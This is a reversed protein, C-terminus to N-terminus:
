MINVITMYIPIVIIGLVITIFSLSAAFRIDGGYQKAVVAMVTMAPMAAQMTFVKRSIDTLDFFPLLILVCLPCVVFRGLISFAMDLDFRFEKLSVRSVEIGIFILSLPTTLNGIYTFGNMLPAPLQIGALLIVLGTFFGRLPVPILRSLTIHKAADAAEGAGDRAITYAGVTWFWLTNATYYLMLSPISKEGFLALNVPLGIFMTNSAFYNVVFVGRRGRRVKLLRAFLRGALMALLISASPVIMDPAMQRIKEVSMNRNIVVILYFPLSIHTVMKSILASGKDDVWGKKGMFIGAAMVVMITFIGELGQLAYTLM